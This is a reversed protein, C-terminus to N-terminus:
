DGDGTIERISVRVAEFAPPWPALAHAIKRFIRRLAPLRAARADSIELTVGLLKGLLLHMSTAERVCRLQMKVDGHQRYWEARARMHHVEAFLAQSQLSFSRETLIPVSEPDPEPPRPAPETWAKAPIEFQATILRVQASTPTRQGTCWRAVLSQDVELRDGIEQQSLPLAQLAVAGASRGVSSRAGKPKAHPAIKARTRRRSTM